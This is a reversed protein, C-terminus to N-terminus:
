WTHICTKFDFMQYLREILPWQHFGVISLLYVQWQPMCAELYKVLNRPRIGPYHASTSLFLSTVPPGHHNGCSHCSFHVLFQNSTIFSVWVHSVKHIPLTISSNNKLLSLRQVIQPMVFSKAVNVLHSLFWIYHLSYSLSNKSNVWLLWTVWLLPDVWLCASYGTTSIHLHLCTGHEFTSQLSGYICIFFIGRETLKGMNLLHTGRKMKVLEFLTFLVRQLEDFYSEMRM